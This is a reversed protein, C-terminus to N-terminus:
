YEEADADDFFDESGDDGASEWGDEAEAVVIASTDPDDSPSPDPVSKLDPTRQAPVKKKPKPKEVVAPEPTEDAWEDEPDAEETFGQEEPTAVDADPEFGLQAALADAKAKAKQYAEVKRARAAEKAAEREAVRAPDKRYAETLAAIVAITEPKIVKGTEKKIYGALAKQTETAKVNEIDFAM